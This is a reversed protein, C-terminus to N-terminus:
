EDETEKPETWQRVVKGCQTCVEVKYIYTPYETSQEEKHSNCDCMM